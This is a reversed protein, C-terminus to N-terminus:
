TTQHLIRGNHALRSRENPPSPGLENAGHLALSSSLTVKSKSEELMIKRIGLSIVPGLSATPNEFTFIDTNRKMMVLLIIM